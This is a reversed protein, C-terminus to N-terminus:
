AKHRGQGWKLQRWKEGKGQKMQPSKSFQNGQGLDLLNSPKLEAASYMIYWVTSPQPAKEKEIPYKQNFTYFGVRPTCFGGSGQSVKGWWFPPVSPSFSSSPLFDLLRGRGSGRKMGGGLGPRNM